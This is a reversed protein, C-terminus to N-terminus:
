VLDPLVRPRLNHPLRHMDTAYWKDSYWVSDGRFALHQSVVLSPSIYPSLGM